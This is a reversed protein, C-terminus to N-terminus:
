VSVCWGHSSYVVGDYGTAEAYGISDGEIAMLWVWLLLEYSKTGLVLGRPREEDFGITVAVGVAFMPM